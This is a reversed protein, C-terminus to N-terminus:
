RKGVYNLLCIWWFLFGAFYREATALSLIVCLFPQLPAMPSWRKAASASFSWLSPSCFQWSRLGEQLCVLLSPKRKLSAQCQTSLTLCLVNASYVFLIIFKFFNQSTFKCKAAGDSTEGRFSTQSVLASIGYQHRTVVWIQTNRRIPQHLNGWSRLRRVNKFYWRM